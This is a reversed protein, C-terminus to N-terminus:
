VWYLLLVQQSTLKRLAAKLASHALPSDSVILIAEM